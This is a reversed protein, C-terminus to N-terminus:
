WSNCRGLPRANYPYVIKLEIASFCYSTEVTCFLLTTFISGYRRLAVTGNLLLRCSEHLIIMLCSAVGLRARGTIIVVM